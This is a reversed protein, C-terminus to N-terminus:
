DLSKVFAGQLGVDWCRIGLHTFAQKAKKLAWPKNSSDFIVEDFDYNCVLDDIHTVSSHSIVVWDVKLRENAAVHKFTYSSDVLLVRKDGLQVLCGLPLRSSPLPSQTKIGREIWHPLIYFGMIKKNAILNSDFNQCVTAGNLFAIASQRPVDYVAFIKQGRHEIYKYTNALCFALLLVLSAVVARPKLGESVYAWVGLLACLLVMELVGFSISNILAFPLSNIWFIFKDLGFLLWKFVFGAATNLYPISGLIFLATGAFLVLNSLPIVVLNTLLFLVPFQHFYYLTVPLTAIQAAISAACLQWAADPISFLLWGLDYRIFYLPKLYWKANASVRNYPNRVVVWAAIKPQLFIIGAVAIYSLQFGTETIIFPNLLMLLLASAALINYTNANRFM